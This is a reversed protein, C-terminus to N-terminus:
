KVEESTKLLNEVMTVQRFKMADDVLKEKIFGTPQEKLGAYPCKCSEYGYAKCILPRDEYIMCHNTGKEEDRKFICSGPKIGNKLYENKKQFTIILGEDGDGAKGFLAQIKILKTSLQSTSNAKFRKKFEPVKNYKKFITELESFKFPVPGCCDGDCKDCPNDLLKENALINNLYNDQNSFKLM